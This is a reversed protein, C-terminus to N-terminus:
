FGNLRIVRLNNHNSTEDSTGSHKEMWVEAMKATTGHNIGTSSANLRTDAPGGQAATEEKITIRRHYGSDDSDAGTALVDPSTIGGILHDRGIRENFAQKIERIRQPGELADDTNAPTSEDNPYKNAM